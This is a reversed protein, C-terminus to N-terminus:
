RGVHYIVKGKISEDSCLGLETSSIGKPNDSQLLYQKQANQAVIRKLIIGYQPHDVVVLDLTQYAKWSTLKRMYIVFDGENFGPSM